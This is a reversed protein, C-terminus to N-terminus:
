PEIEVQRRPRIASSGRSNKKRREQPRKRQLEQMTDENRSTLSAGTLEQRTRSKQDREVRNQVTKDRRRQEEVESTVPRQPSSRSVEEVAQRILDSWRANAFDVVRQSLETRGMSGAGRSRHLLMMPVLAFLKWARNEADVDGAQKTRFRERLAVGMCERFRSRLFHPCAKLM